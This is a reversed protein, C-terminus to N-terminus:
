TPMCFEADPQQDSTPLLPPLCGSFRAFPQVPVPVISCSISCASPMHCSCDLGSLHSVLSNFTFTCQMVMVEQPHEATFTATQKPAALCTTISCFLIYHDHLSFASGVAANNLFSLLFSNWRNNRQCLSWYTLILQSFTLPPVPFLFKSFFLEALVVRM